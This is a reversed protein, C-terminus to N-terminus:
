GSVKCSFIAVFPVERGAEDTFQAKGTGEVRYVSTSTSSNLEVLTASAEGVGSSVVPGASMDAGAPPLMAYEVKMSKPDIGTFQMGFAKEGRSVAFVSGARQTCDVQSMDFDVKQGDVIVVPETSDAPPAAVSSSAAAATEGGGASDDSSSCATLAAISGAAVLAVACHRIRM